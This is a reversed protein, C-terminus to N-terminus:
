SDKSIHKSITCGESIYHLLGTEEDRFIWWDGPQCPKSIVIAAHSLTVHANNFDVQVVDGEEITDKINM